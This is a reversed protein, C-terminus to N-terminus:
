MVLRPTCSTEKCFTCQYGPVRSSNRIMLSLFGRDITYDNINYNILYKSNSLPSVILLNNQLNNLKNYLYLNFKHYKLNYFTDMTNLFSLDFTYRQEGDWVVGGIKGHLKGRYDYTAGVDSFKNNANSFFSLLRELCLTCTSVFEDRDAKIVNYKLNANLEEEWVETSIVGNVLSLGFLASILHAYDKNRVFHPCGFARKCFTQVSIRNTM